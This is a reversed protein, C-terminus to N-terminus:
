SVNRLVLPLYIRYTVAVGGWFGGQIRYGGDSIVAADPQGVTGALRFGGGASEGGGGNVTSWSLDYGGGSQAQTSGATSVLVLLALVLALWRQTRRRM